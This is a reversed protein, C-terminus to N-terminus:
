MHAWAYLALAAGLAVIKYSFNEFVLTNLYNKM